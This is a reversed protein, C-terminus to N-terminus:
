KALVIAGASEWEWYGGNDAAWQELEPHIWPYGGVFEGYYDALGLGDEASVYITGDDRQKVPSVDRYVPKVEDGTLDIDVLVNMVPLEM